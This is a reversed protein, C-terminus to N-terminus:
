RVAPRQNNLVIAVVDPVTDKRRWIMGGDAIGRRADGVFVGVHFEELGVIRKELPGVFDSGGIELAPDLLTGEVVPAIKIGFVRRQQGHVVWAFGIEGAAEDVGSEAFAGVDVWAQGKKAFKGFADGAGIAEKDVQKTGRLLSQLRRSTFWSSVRM